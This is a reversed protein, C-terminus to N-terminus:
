NKKFNIKFKGELSHFKISNTEKSMLQGAKGQDISIQINPHNVILQLKIAKLFEKLDEMSTRHNIKGVKVSTERLQTIKRIQFIKRQSKWHKVLGEKTILIKFLGSELRMELGLHM